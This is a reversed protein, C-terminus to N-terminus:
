GAYYTTTADLPLGGAYAGEEAGVRMQLKNNKSSSPKRDDYNENEDCSFMQQSVCERERVEWGLGDVFRDFAPTAADNSLISNKDQM